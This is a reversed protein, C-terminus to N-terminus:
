GGCGGITVKVPKSATFFKGDSTKAVVIINETAALRIRTAAEAHGSLPTLRFTIIGPRPNGDAVVLIDSVYSEATMPSDVKVSLPVTNGNEAIEPLDISIRGAEATKGGTFKAIEDAAEKPTASAPSAGALAMASGAAALALAERRTLHRM